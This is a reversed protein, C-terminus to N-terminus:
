LCIPHRIVKFEHLGPLYNKLVPLLVHIFERSIHKWYLINELYVNYWSSINGSLCLIFFDLCIRSFPLHPHSFSSDLIYNLKPVPWM